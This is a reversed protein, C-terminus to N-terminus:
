FNQVKDAASFNFFSHFIVSFYICHFEAVEYAEAIQCCWDVGEGQNRM